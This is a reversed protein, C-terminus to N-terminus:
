AAVNSIYSREDHVYIRRDIYCRNEERGLDRDISMSNITDTIEILDLQTRAPGHERRLKGVIGVCRYM